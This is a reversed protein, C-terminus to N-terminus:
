KVLSFKYNIVEMFLKQQDPSLKKEAPGLPSDELASHHHDSGITGLFSLEEPTLLVTKDGKTLVMYDRNHHGEYPNKTSKFDVEGECHCIGTIDGMQFIYLKTGRIAAISTKTNLIIQDNKSLKKNVRLWINGNVLNYNSVTKMEFRTNEKIEIDATSNNISVIVISSSGTEIIDGNSFADGNKLNSKTNNREIVANGVVRSVIGGDINSDKKCSFHFSSIIIVMSIILHPKM